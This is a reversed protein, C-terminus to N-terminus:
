RRGRSSRRQPLNGAGYPVFQTAFLRRFAAFDFLLWPDVVYDMIARRDEGCRRRMWATLKPFVHSSLASELDRRSVLAAELHGGAPAVDILQLEGWLLGVWIDIDGGGGRHCLLAVTLAMAEVLEDTPYPLVRLGDWCRNALISVRRDMEADAGVLSIDFSLLALGHRHQWMAPEVLQRIQALVASPALTTDIGSISLIRMAATIELPEIAPYVWRPEHGTWYSDLTPVQRWAFAGPYTVRKIGIRNPVGDLLSKIEGVEHRYIWQDIVSELASKRAPYLLTQEEDSLSELPFHIRFAKALARSMAREAGVRLFLGRQAELRWLNAVGISVVALQNVRALDRELFGYIVASDADGVPEQTKAFLAAVTPDTTLDLLRTPIGYHQGIATLAIRHGEYPAMQPAREAWDLFEALHAEARVRDKGSRRLLSPLLKPWHRTQGRFLDARGTAALEWCLEVAEASSKVYIEM